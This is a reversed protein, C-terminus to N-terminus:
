HLLKGCRIINNFWLLDGRIEKVIIDNCCCSQSFPSAFSFLFLCNVNNEHYYMRSDLYEHFAIDEHCSELLSM